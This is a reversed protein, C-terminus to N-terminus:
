DFLIPHITQYMLEALEPQSGSKTSKVVSFGRQGYFVNVEAWHNGMGARIQKGYQISKHELVTLGAATVAALIDAQKHELEAPVTPDPKKPRARFNPNLKQKIALLVEDSPGGPAPQKDPKAEQAAELVQQAKNVQYTIDPAATDIYDGIHVPEPEPNYYADTDISFFCARSVDSTVTDIVKELHYQAALRQIFVKYFLSFLGADQCPESLRFMAKIGDGGPSTFLLLTRPDTRLAQVVAERSCDAWEFHDMDVVLCHISSFHERRRIAPHFHGCVFYPLDTKLRSYQRPDMVRVMRLHEIQQRFEAKPHQLAHHIREISVKQLPDNPQKIYLGFQVNM